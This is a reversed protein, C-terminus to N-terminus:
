EDATGLAEHLRRFFDQKTVQSILFRKKRSGTGAVLEVQSKKLHLEKAITETIARNAKGKEPVQTVAVKLTGQEIGILANRRSGPMAKVPVVIGEPHQEVEIM